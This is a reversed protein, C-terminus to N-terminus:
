IECRPLVVFAGKWGTLSSAFPNSSYPAPSVSVTAGIEIVGGGAAHPHSMVGRWQSRTFEKMERTLHSSQRAGNIEALIRSNVAKIVKPPDALSFPTRM